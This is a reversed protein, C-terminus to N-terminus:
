VQVKRQRWPQRGPVLMAQYVARGAGGAQHLCQQVNGLADEPHQLQVRLVQNRAAGDRGHVGIVRGSGAHKDYLRRGGTLHASPKGPSGFSNQTAM